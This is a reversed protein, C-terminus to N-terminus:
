CPCWYKAFYLYSWGPNLTLNATGNGVIIINIRFTGISFYTEVLGYVKVKHLHALCLFFFRRVVKSSFIFIKSIVRSSMIIDKDEMYISDIQDFM